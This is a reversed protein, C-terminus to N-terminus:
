QNYLNISANSTEVDLLKGGDNYKAM